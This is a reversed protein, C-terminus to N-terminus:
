ISSSKYWLEGFDVWMRPTIKVGELAYDYSIDLQKHVLFILVGSEVLANELEGYMEIRRQQEAEEKIRNVYAAVKEKWDDTMLPYIFGDEFLLLEFISVLGENPTGEFMVFDAELLVEKSLIQDWDMIKVVLQVGFDELMKKLINADAEHRKYTILTLTIKEDLPVIAKAMASAAKSRDTVNFGYAPGTRSHGIKLFEERNIMRQITQRFEENALPGKKSANLLLVNTGSFISSRNKWEKSPLANTEDTNLFIKSEEMRNEQMDETLRIIEIRDLHPMFGYYNEFATLTCSDAEAKEFEFPGTGAPCKIEGDFDSPHVISMPVAAVYQLFLHNPRNLEISVTHKSEVEIESVDQVLWRHPSNKVRELSAKVVEATLEKGNHFQIKKRLYFSWRTKSDNSEWHHALAPAFAETEHNYQVLTSFVQSALHADLDFFVRTPDFTTIPRFIPFRLVELEDESSQIRQYGFYDRIWSHVYDEVATGSGFEKVLELALTLEQHDILSEVQKLLSSQLSELFLITSLNGRGKGPRFEMFGEDVLKKVIIKANKQTCFFIDMLKNMSVQIESHNDFNRYAKRLALFYYHHNQLNM